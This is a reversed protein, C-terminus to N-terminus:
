RRRALLYAQPVSETAYPERVTTSVMEFGAERLIAAVAEPKLRYADLSVDHGYGHEIHRKEDGVQFALALCGGPTLVRRFEAFLAPLEAPPTHIISYWAVIGALTADPADLADMSGVSFPIGPHMDRAVEVMAPSLDIGSVELGLGALFATVHGPGSGADLVPGAVLEAFATLAARDDPLEDLAHQLQEGYNRAVTDYAIRTANHHPM